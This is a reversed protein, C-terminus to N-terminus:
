PCKDIYGGYLPEALFLVSDFTKVAIGLMLIKNMFYGSNKTFNKIYHTIGEMTYELDLESKVKDGIEYQLGEDVIEQILFM